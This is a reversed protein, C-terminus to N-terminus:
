FTEIADDDEAFPIEEASLVTVAAGPKEGYHKTATLAVIQTDDKYIVGNGADCICKLLNDIDPKTTPRIDGDIMQRRKVKSASKPIAYTARVRMELPGEMLPVDSYRELYMAKILNEYVATKEPTYARAHGGIMAVRARGKGQPQGPIFFQRIDM